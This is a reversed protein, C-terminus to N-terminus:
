GLALPPTLIGWVTLGLCGLEVWFAKLNLSSLSSMTIM